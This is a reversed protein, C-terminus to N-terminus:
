TYVTSHCSFDAYVQDKFTEPIRQADLTPHSFVLSCKKEYTYLKCINSFVLLHTKLAIEIKQKM